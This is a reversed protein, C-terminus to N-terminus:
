LVSFSLRRQDASDALVPVRGSAETAGMACALLANRASGVFEVTDFTWQTSDLVETPAAVEADTALGAGSHSGQLVAAGAM